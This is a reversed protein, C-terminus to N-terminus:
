HEDSEAVLSESDLPPESVDLIRLARRKGARGAAARFKEQRDILVRVPENTRCQLPIVDGEQLDALDHLTLRTRGLEARLEVGLTRLTDEYRTRVEPAVASVTGSHWRQMGTRGLMKELLLYPYCINIFSRHGQVRIDFTGVLAPEMSPLIQVFEANSEFATERLRIEYAQKWSKELEDFARRVVRSMIRREIQSVERADDTFVGPGGFLKEITYVVVRPDLEFIIQHGLGEAAGVYLASPPASSAVYESYLVQDVAALTIEVMTRLQASLYVSLDRAFSEHVYQLVRMQDQSFLRPRKFNYPAVRRKADLVQAELASLDAEAAGDQANLLFDIENQNLAKAM